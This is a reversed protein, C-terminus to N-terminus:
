VRLSSSPPPITARPRPRAATRRQAHARGTRANADLPHERAAVDFADLAEDLRGMVELVRARGTKAVVNDPHERAATEYSDLAEDFRGMARLVDARGTKAFVSDPHEEAIRAYARLAEDFRGMVKLVDAHGTQAVPDSPAAVIAQEYAVRAEDLRGMTKLVDAKGKLAVHPQGFLSANHYASLAEEFRAINCLAKGLQAWAWADDGKLRTARQLWDVQLAFEGHRQAEMALDCLSKVLHIPKGTGLQFAVLEDVLAAARERDYRAIADAVLRKQATVRELVRRHDIRGQPGKGRPPPAISGPERKDSALVPPARRPPGLAGLWALLVSRHNRVARVGPRQLAVAVLAPASQRTVRATVLERFVGEQVLAERVRARDAEAGFVAAPIREFAADVERISAQRAEVEGTDVREACRPCRGPLTPPPGPMVSPLVLDDCCAPCKM